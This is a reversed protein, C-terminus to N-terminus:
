ARAKPWCRAPPACSPLQARRQEERAQAQQKAVLGIVFAFSSYGVYLMAQLVAFM